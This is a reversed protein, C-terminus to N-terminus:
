ALKGDQVLLGVATATFAKTNSGISFLTHEDVEEPKDMERVGYGKSLMIQDNKLIVLALGPINWTQMAKEVTADIENSLDTSPKM